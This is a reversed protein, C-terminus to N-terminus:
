LAMCDLRWLYTQSDRLYTMAEEELSETAYADSIAQKTVAVPFSWMAGATILGSVIVVSPLDIFTFVGQIGHGFAVGAVSLAGFLAISSMIRINM